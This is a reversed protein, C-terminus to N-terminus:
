TDDCDDSSFLQKDSNAITQSFGKLNIGKYYIKLYLIILVFNASVHMNTQEPLETKFFSSSITSFVYLIINLDNKIFKLVCSFSHLFFIYPFFIM